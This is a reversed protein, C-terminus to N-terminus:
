AQKLDEPSKEGLDGAQFQLAQGDYEVQLVDLLYLVAVLLLAQPAAIAIIIVWLLSLEVLIKGASNKFTVEHSKAEDILAQIKSM